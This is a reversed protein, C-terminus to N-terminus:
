PPQPTEDIKPNEPEKKKIIQFPVELSGAPSCPSWLLVCESREELLLWSRNGLHFCSIEKFEDM